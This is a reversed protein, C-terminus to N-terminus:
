PMAGAVNIGLCSECFSPGPTSCWATREWAETRLRSSAWELESTVGAHRRRERHRCAVHAQLNRRAGLRLVQVDDLIHAVDPPCSSPDTKCMGVQGGLAQVLNMQHPGGPRRPPVASLHELLALGVRRAPPRASDACGGAAGGVGAWASCQCRGAPVVHRHGLLPGRQVGLSARQARQARSHGSPEGLLQCGECCITEGPRSRHRRTGEPSSGRAPHPAAGPQTPSCSTSM